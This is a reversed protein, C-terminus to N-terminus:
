KKLKFVSKALEYAVGRAQNEQHLTEDQTGEAFTPACSSREHLECKQIVGRSPGKRERNKQPAMHRQLIERHSKIEIKREESSYIKESPFRSVCMGITYVGTILCSIRSVVKRRSKAPSGMLRLTDSDANTAMHADQNLSTISVCPLTGIKCSTNTGKRRFFHRCPITVRTGSPKEERRGSSKSPKKGDTQAKAKPALSSSQGEQRQDRRNGSAPDRVFSCSDGKARQGIAKWLYWEGVKREASAKRGKESKIVAGREVIKNGARLNRTTMSEDVHRRVNTKLRSYNPPESNRINEQEYLALVTQFQVSDQLKSKYLGELVMETPIESAALLAQDRRTDFDQVDDNHLCINFLDSQGQVAEYARNARFHEYIM